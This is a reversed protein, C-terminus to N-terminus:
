AAKPGTFRGDHRPRLTITEASAAGATPGKSAVDPPLSHGSPFVAVARLHPTAAESQAEYAGHAKAAVRRLVEEFSLIGGLKPGEEPVTPDFLLLQITDRM